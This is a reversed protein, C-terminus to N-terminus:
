SKEGPLLGHTIDIARALPLAWPSHAPLAGTSM